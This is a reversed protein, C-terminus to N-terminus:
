SFWRAALTRGFERRFYDRLWDGARKGQHRYFTEGTESNHVLEGLPMSNERVHEWLASSLVACAAARYETPWYGGVTYDLGRGPTYTLRGSYARFAERLRDASIGSRRVAALLVRADRLQRAIKRCEAFYARRGDADRSDRIYNRADLGPRQRVWVDLLNLIADRESTIPAASYHNEATQLM